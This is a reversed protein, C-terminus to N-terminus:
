SLRREVQGLSVEVLLLSGQAAGSVFEGVRFFRELDRRLSPPAPSIFGRDLLGGALEM